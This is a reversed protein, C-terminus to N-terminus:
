ICSAYGGPGCFTGKYSATRTGGTPIWQCTYKPYMEICSGSGVAQCKWKPVNNYTVTQESETCVGADDICYVGGLWSYPPHSSFCNTNNCGGGFCSSAPPNVFYPPVCCKGPKPGPEVPAPDDQVMTFSMAVLVLPTALLM